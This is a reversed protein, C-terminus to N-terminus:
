TQVDEPGCEGCFHKGDKVTWGYERVLKSEIKEDRTDYYGNKGSYDPYVFEPQVEAIEACGNGDCSVQVIADHIM